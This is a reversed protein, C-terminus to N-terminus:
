SVVAAVRLFMIYAVVLWGTLKVLQLRRWWASDPESPALVESTVLLWLFSSLFYAQPDFIGIAALLLSSLVVLTLMVSLFVRFQRSGVATVSVSSVRNVWAM